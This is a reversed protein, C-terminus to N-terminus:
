PRIVAVFGVSNNYAILVDNLDALNDGNIDTVVYGSVFSNADNYTQLVDTLDIVGNQNVDGSYIGRWSQTPIVQVMNDGYSAGPILFNKYFSIGRTYSIGTNSWTEISNRHKVVLYYNGNIANNFLIDYMIHSGSIVSKASDVIAFPSSAQRLQFRITDAMSWYTGYNVFMGQSMLAVICPVPSPSKAKFCGFPMPVYNTYYKWPGFKQYPNNVLNYQVRARWKYEKTSILGSIDRNLLVGAPSTGLDTSDGSGSSSVSNTITTGSSFPDGNAKYEYVIKGDARGFFSRGFISLRAQGDTGTLGGSYVINNTNPKYQQVTSRKGTGENGYYVLAKGLQTFPTGVIVDSYGDGNVDGGASVSYGFQASGQNSESTWSSSSLLGTSSGHYVYARGENTQGNDFLDAGIIVDSYGDGNVDGATSVSNGFNASGQNIEATWNSSGLLGASSGHYVYARGGNTYGPAGVIVDSYGDGNVDGAISVSHGFNANALNIVANWNSTAPLGLASGHYVYARGGNTYGPAGVIVDSFGDGNVDGATSVSRGFNANALNIEATWNATASLGLSSGYYVFTGGENSQGNDFNEAGVIVDSYGDGNVDGATSVSKGFNANAQNSEATWNAAASIGSASGHFVYAKGEQTQGNGFWEAGVIVDAYGDGNVDGATSVSAGFKSEFQNNEATWNAAISLGSASGHFVFARGGTIKGNDYDPAGVIVDSYGDGNVDGASSVSSGFNSGVQDSEATWNDSASLGSASGHYIFTRGENTQGNDYLYAGVIVDSFGDGNVDGVTSVSYGFQANAQGSGATWIPTSSLGSSNGYFVYARGENTQGDYLNAGVIVDCFGDGNVDGASSVSCGFRASDQDSEVTWNPSGSLGLASGHYVYARGEDTQINDYLRAGVIVDSKGDGNVDGATSVSFGFQANDQDSEATWNATYSLGSVSGHYVYARGENAQGNTYAVAGVIVDNFGDGNVDGATSVSFGFNANNQNSEAVWNATDSLGSESGHYVYARGENGEGNQYIVAGVIVDSFGDNNVDGATSVSFGFYANEQDSEATWNPTASLGSKSGHYVFVKGEKTQGSDYLYAGVIVDSFEDGNVDGATSVSHGFYADGQDCEATWNPNANPGTESGHFVYVRGNNIDLAGVIVDSYGDGNVDGATSVSYGFQANADNGESTWNPSTSLPDVTVPYVADEDNVVISFSKTDTEIESKLNQIKSKDKLEYNTIGLELNKEFYARLEKGNADWCKLSSYKMKDEGEENKFMLADAGVIMKLKTDASFNLKLKGEGEPRQKIIFDQRMGNDDNTYDIKIKENEIYAKNGNVVLEDNEIQFKSNTIQFQIDWDDLIEYKKDEEKINKDNADFLPLKTTRPKATFGDKHYIFRMNYARNPSQYAGLEESYTISYEDKTINEIAKQYWGQDIEKEDKKSENKISEEFSPTPPCFLKSIDIDNKFSTNSQKMSNFSFFLATSLFLLYTKM